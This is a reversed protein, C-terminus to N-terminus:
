IILQKTLAEKVIEFMLQHGRENPHLGDSLYELGKGKSFERFVDVFELKHEGAVKRIAQDYQIVANNRYSREEMWYLPDTKSEDVSTLGVFLIKHTFKRAMQILKELNKEFDEIPIMHKNLDHLYHSDNMGIAFIIYTEQEDNLRQTMEPDFRAILDDTTNGPISLNYVPFYLECKSEVVKSTCIEAIRAVWGGKSDWMGFSISDGFVLIQSM